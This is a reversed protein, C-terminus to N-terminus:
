REPEAILTASARGFVRLGRNMACPTSAASKARRKKLYPISWGGLGEEGCDRVAMGEVAHPDPRSALRDLIEACNM